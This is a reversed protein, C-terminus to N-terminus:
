RDSRGASPASCDPRDDTPSGDALGEFPQLDAHDASGEVRRRATRGDASDQNGTRIAELDELEHVKKIYDERSEYSSRTNEVVRTRTELEREKAEVGSLNAQDKMGDFKLTLSANDATLSTVSNSLAAKEGTLKTIEGSLAAVKAESANKERLTEAQFDKM